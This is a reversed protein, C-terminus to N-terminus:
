EANVPGAVTYALYIPYLLADYISPLLHRWAAPTVDDLIWDSHSSAIVSNVILDGGQAHSLFMIMM